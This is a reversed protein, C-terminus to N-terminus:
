RQRHAGLTLGADRRHDGIAEIVDGTLDHAVRIGEEDGGIGLIRIPLAADIDRMAAAIGTEGPQIRIAAQGNRIERAIQKEVREPIERDVRFGPQGEDTEARAIQQLHGPIDFHNEFARFEGGELARLPEPAKPRAADDAAGLSQRQAPGEHLIAPGRVRQRAAIPLLGGPPHRRRHVWFM